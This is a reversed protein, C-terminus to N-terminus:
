DEKDKVENYADLVADKIMLRTDANIPHAIDKFEGNATRKSPFSIFLEDKYNEIVYIDHVVFCNDFTVSAIARRKGDEYNTKRIRVDTIQM